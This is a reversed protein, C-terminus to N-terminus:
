PGKKRHFLFNPTNSVECIFIFVEEFERIFYDYFEVVLLKRANHKVQGVQRTSAMVLDGESFM